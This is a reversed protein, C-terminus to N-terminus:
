RLKLLRGLAILSDPTVPSIENNPVSMPSVFRVSEVEEAQLTFPGDSRCSYVRGWCRTAADEYLFSFHTTLDIGFVGLEEGLERQASEDYSEGVVVVGGAALDFYGPYLDKSATRKQVLIEDAENFVFIFTARHLLRDRRMQSRPASGIVHNKQDVISVQEEM